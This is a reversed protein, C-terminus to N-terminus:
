YNYYCKRQKNTKDENIKIQKLSKLFVAHLLGVTESFPSYCARTKCGERCLVESGCM